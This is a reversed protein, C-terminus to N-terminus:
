RHHTWHPRTIWPGRRDQDNARLLGGNGLVPGSDLERLPPQPVPRLGLRRGQFVRVQETIIEPLPTLERATWFHSAPGYYGQAAIRERAIQDYPKNEAISNRIWEGYLQTYELDQTSSTTLRLFEGFRYTWYEVYEPSSLLLEILKDRKRADKSDLFQRVREPPPLTGTLDLCIRRLFEADSSLQSPIINFRRLKAFVHEDIFNKSAVAPYGALPRAIVGVSASVPHGAARVMVATEGTGKAKVLGSEGVDVVDPNNSVYLVEDTIDDLRGNSLHATVLLQQMGAGDLVAAKPFVEVKTITVVESGPGEEGYPAGKRIWGLVTEYDPSRAKIRMGGGHAVEMTPKLLLLSKEPNKLDIRPVKPAPSEATLVQYVGGQVIWQYDERPYLADTSLKFGGKGRVSGHCDSSNCGNRTLFGGIDRAFSFTRKEETGVTRIRSTATQGGFSASLEAEGSGVALVRASDDIKAVKSDSLVLDSQNTVDRELGDSYKAMVLLRQRSGAGWLTTRDPVLRLSVLRSRVEVARTKHTTAAPVPSAGCIFSTVSMVVLATLGRKVAVATM